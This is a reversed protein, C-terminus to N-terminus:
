NRVFVRRLLPQTLLYGDRLSEANDHFTREIVPRLKAIATARAPDARLLYALFDEVGALASERPYVTDEVLRCSPGGALAALAALAQARIGTEDDVPRMAEFFSGQALPEIVILRGEARLVRLAEALAPEMLPGPVHHLSNLFVVADFRGDAFPLEEAGAAILRPDDAPAQPDVGTTDFGRKRLARVLGGDGCGVDLVTRAGVAKLQTLIGELTPNQESM